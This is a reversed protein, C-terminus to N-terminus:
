YIPLEAMEGDQTGVLRASNVSASSEVVDVLLSGVKAHRFKQKVLSFCWDPSSKTHGVPLFSYTINNHLGLAVRWM